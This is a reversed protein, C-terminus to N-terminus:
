PPEHPSRSRPMGAALDGTAPGTKKAAYMSEDACRVLEDPQLDLGSAVGISASVTLQLAGVRVPASLANRIHAVVRAPDREDTVDELLVAFEDGGMRAVTDGKRVSLRLRHAVTVLVEDGVAHGFEDNIKKFGDLDVFLVAVPHRTRSAHDLAHALRDFYLTRNAVATLPDHFAQYTLRQEIDKRRTIDHAMLLTGVPRSRRDTLTSAHLDYVRGAIREEVPEGGEATELRHRAHPLLTDVHRGILRTAPLGFAAAGAPNVDVVRYLPDLTVVLDDTATFVHSRAIPRLGVLRFRLVGWMLVVGLGLFAYPTLDIRGFPPVGTNFLVNCLFPVALSVVLMTSERRYVPSLRWLRVGLVVTATWLLLYTYVTHPWFLVGAGAVRSAAGVPYVRILDHTHTDALLVLVLTPEVALLLMVAGRLRPRGTYAAVFAVWAVPMACIGVYKANGWTRAASASTTLELGYAAGWAAAALLVLMLWAAGNDEFRRRWVIAVLVAVAAASALMLPGGPSWQWSMDVVAVM